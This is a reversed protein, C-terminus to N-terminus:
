PRYRDPKDVVGYYVDLGELIQKQRDEAAKEEQHLRFAEVRNVIKSRVDRPNGVFLFTLGVDGAATRIQVDGFNILNRWIGKQLVDVTQVKDLGTERTIRSILLPTAEIDILNTNTVIYQDNYWDAYGYIFWLLSGVVLALWPLFLRSHEINLSSLFSPALLGVTLLTLFLLLPAIARQLLNLWHKRWVIANELTPKKKAPKSGILKRLRQPILKQRWQAFRQRWTPSPGPDSLARKNEPVILALRLERMVRDRLLERRRGLRAAQAEARRALVYGKARDPQPVDNFVITVDKAATRIIVDGFGFIRGWFRRNVTADQVRDLFADIQSFQLLWIRDTRSVRRNTIFYLDDYYDNLYLYAFVIYVLGIPLLYYLDSLQSAGIAIYVPLIALIMLVVIRIALWYWHRRGQWVLEEGEELWEIARQKGKAEKFAHRLSSGRWLGPNAAFVRRLDRRDLFLCEAGPLGTSSAARITADQPAGELLSTDGATDNEKLVKLPRIRKNDDLGTAVAEGERVLVFRQGTNGHITIHQQEPIFAWSIHQALHARQEPNLDTAWPSKIQRLHDILDIPAKITDGIDAVVTTLRALHDEPLYFTFANGRAQATNAVCTSSVSVGPTILFNGATIRWEPVRLSIPIGDALPGTVALQGNYVGWLGKKATLPLSNGQKFEQEDIVQALLRIEDDELNRFLPIMRLRSARTELLLTDYYDPKKELILRLGAPTVRLLQGPVSSVAESYNPGFFLGYQGFFQNPAIQRRFWLFKDRRANEHVVGHLLWFLHTQPQAQVFIKHGAGFDLGGLEELLAKAWADEPKNGKPNYTSAWPNIRIFHAWAHDKTLPM